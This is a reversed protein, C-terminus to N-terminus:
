EAKELDLDILWPSNWPNYRLTMISANVMLTEQGHKLERGGGKAIDVRVVGLEKHDNMDFRADKKEEVHQEMPVDLEEGAKWKVRQAGWAEHIHGFCHLKPKCRRAARLLHQCGVPEGRYTADLIGMPPGHTMMVDIAPFDPVPNEAIPV